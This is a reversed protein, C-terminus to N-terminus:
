FTCLFMFKLGLVNTDAVRFASSRPHRHNVPSSFVPSQIKRPTMKIKRGANKKNADFDVRGIVLVLVNKGPRICLYIIIKSQKYCFHSYLKFSIYKDAHIYVYSMNMSKKCLDVAQTMIIIVLDPIM